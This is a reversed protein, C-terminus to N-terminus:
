AAGGGGDAGKAARARIEDWKKKLKRRRLKQYATIVPASIFYAAVGAALGPLLGGVLYPLFVADFFGALSDWHPVEATFMARLNRWLESAAEAFATATGRIAEPAPRGLMLNGLELSVTAILPFTLPNGFFTAMLAALMNGRLVLNVLAALLFHFGFFPTFSVFVGAGIGRAIKHPTDPLRRLRHAIYSAARGWGGRPYFSEAVITLWSRKTRRKFVV